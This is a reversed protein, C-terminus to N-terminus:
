ESKRGTGKVRDSPLTKIKDKQELLDEEIKSLIVQLGLIKEMQKEHGYLDATTASTWSILSSHADEYKEELEDILKEIPKNHEAIKKRQSYSKGRKVISEWTM